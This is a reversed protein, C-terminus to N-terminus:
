RVLEGADAALMYGVSRVTLIVRPHQPHTELKERLRAIQMDVTRTEVDRSRYGWVRELLEQRRVARGRNAALYRVIKTELESLRLLEGDDLRVECRLLDVSRDALVLRKVDLPREASRRLVAEVRAMLERASFPKIVYDDAGCELGRVRDDEAGRATLMIVPLRPRAQRIQELLKFGDMGPLVVDLLVLDVPAHLGLELADDGRACEIVDHGALRLADLLGRRVAADDEVVLLKSGAM